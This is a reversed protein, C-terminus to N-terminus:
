STAEETKKEVKEEVAAPPKEAAEEVKITEEVKEEGKETKEVGAAVIVATAAAAEEKAKELKSEGKAKVEVEAKVKEGATAEVKVEATAAAKPEENEKPKADEKSEANAEPKGEEKNPTSQVVQGSADNKAPEEKALSRQESLSCALYGVLKMYEEFGVKGDQNADLGQSMNDVAEKSDADSLINGLEGSVLKQFEKKGLSEKGKSSKLYVKVMTQIAAEM